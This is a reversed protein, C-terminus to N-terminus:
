TPPPLTKTLANATSVISNSAAVIQSFLNTFAPTNTPGPPIWTSQLQTIRTNAKTVISLIRTLRRQESAPDTGTDGNDNDNNPDTDAPQTM